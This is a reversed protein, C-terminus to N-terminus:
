HKLASGEPTGHASPECNECFRGGTFIPQGCKDCVWSRASPTPSFRGLDSHALSSDIPVIRKNGCNACGQYTASRRWISYALGPLLFLLWAALQTPFTEPQYHALHRWFLYVSASVRDSESGIFYFLVPVLFLLWLGAEKLASGPKYEKPEGGFGCDLCHMM